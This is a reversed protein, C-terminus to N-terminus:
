EVARNERRGTNPRRYTTANHIARVFEVCETRMAGPLSDWPFSEEFERVLYDEPVALHAVRLFLDRYKRFFGDARPLTSDQELWRVTRQCFFLLARQDESSLAELSKRTRCKRLVAPMDFGHDESYGYGDFRLACATLIDTEHYSLEHRLDSDWNEAALTREPLSRWHPPPATM